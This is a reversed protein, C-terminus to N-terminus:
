VPIISMHVSLCVSPQLRPLCGASHKLFPAQQFQTVNSTRCYMVRSPRQTQVTERRRLSLRHGGARAESWVQGLERVTAASHDPHSPSLLVFVGPRRADCDATIFGDSAQATESCRWCAETRQGSEVGNDSKSAIVSLRKKPKQLPPPSHPWIGLREAERSRGAKEKRSRKGMSLITRVPARGSPDTLSAATGVSGQMWRWRDASKPCPIPFM